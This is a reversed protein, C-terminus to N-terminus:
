PNIPNISKVSSKNLMYDERSPPNLHTNTSTPIIISYSVTRHNSLRYFYEKAIVTNGDGGGRASVVGVSILLRCVSM